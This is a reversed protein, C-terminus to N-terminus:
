GGLFCFRWKRIRFFRSFCVAITKRSILQEDLHRKEDVLGTLEDLRRSNTKLLDITDDNEEIKRL